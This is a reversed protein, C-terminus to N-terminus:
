MNKQKEFFQKALNGQPDFVKMDGTRQFKILRSKYKGISNFLNEMKSRTDNYFLAGGPAVFVPIRILYRLVKPVSFFKPIKKLQLNAFVGLVVGGLINRVAQTGQKKFMTIDEEEVLEPQSFMFSIAMQDDVPINKMSEWMMQAGPSPGFPDNPNM